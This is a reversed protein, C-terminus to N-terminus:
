SRCRSTPSSLVGKGPNNWKVKQNYVAKYHQTNLLSANFVKRKKKKEKKKRIVGGAISGQDVQGNAFVRGM